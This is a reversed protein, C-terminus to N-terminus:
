YPRTPESIHILSLSLIVGEDFGINSASGDFYGIGQAFGVSSFNSTVLDAGLLVDNVLYEETDYPAANTTVLQASCFSVVLFSFIILFHLKCNM